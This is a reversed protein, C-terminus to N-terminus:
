SRSHQPPTADFRRQEVNAADINLQEFASDLSAFSPFVECLGTIEFIRSVHEDAGALAITSEGRSLLRERLAVFAGLTSSDLYSTESLDLVVASPHDDGLDLLADLRPRQALDLEGKFKIHLQSKYTDV